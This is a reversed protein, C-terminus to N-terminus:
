GHGNGSQHDDGVQGVAGDDVQVQWVGQDGRRSTSRLLAQWRGMVYINQDRSWEWRASTSSKEAGGRVMSGGQAVM